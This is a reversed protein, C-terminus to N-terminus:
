SGPLWGDRYRTPERRPVDAYAVKPDTTEEEVGAGHRRAADDVTYGGWGEQEAFQRSGAAVYVSPADGAGVIIHDTHPPCHVYDWQRLLREEGEIILTGEGSVLLFGEQDAEWHYMGMAEGPQLVVVHLGLLDFEVDGEFDTFAGRGPASYWRCDLANLVFWGEGIRNRGTETEEFPAEGPV